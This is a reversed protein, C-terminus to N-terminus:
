SAVLMLSAECGGLAASARAKPLPAALTTNIMMLLADAWGNVTVETDDFSTPNFFAVCDFPSEETQLGASLGLPAGGRKTATAGEEM